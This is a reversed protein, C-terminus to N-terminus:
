GRRKTVTEVPWGGAESEMKGVSSEFPLFSIYTRQLVMSGVFNLSAEDNKVQYKHLLYGTKRSRIVAITWCVHLVDRETSIFEEIRM